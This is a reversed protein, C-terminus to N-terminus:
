ARAAVGKKAFHIQLRSGNGAAAFRRYDSRFLRHLKGRNQNSNTVTLNERACNPVCRSWKSPIEPINQFLHSSRLGEELASKSLAPCPIQVRVWTARVLIKLIALTIWCRPSHPVILMLDYATLIRADQVKQSM